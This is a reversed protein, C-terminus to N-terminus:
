IEPHVLCGRNLPNWGRELIAHKNGAVDGFCKSWVLGVMLVVHFRSIKIQERYMRQQNRIYEKERRINVKFRGNQQSSDGVQWFATGNPLGIYCHWAHNAESISNGKEDLYNIYRLFPISLRSGHGDLLLCPRPDRPNRDTVGM